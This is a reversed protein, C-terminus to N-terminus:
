ILFGNEYVPNFILDVGIMRADVNIQLKSDLIEFIPIGV